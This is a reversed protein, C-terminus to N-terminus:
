SVHPPEQGVPWTKWMFRESQRGRSRKGDIKGMISLSEMRDKRMLHGFFRMQRQRITKMLIRTTNMSRLIEENTQHSTWSVKLIRWYFWLEVAELEKTMQSSITWCESGYLLIPLVYCELIRKKTILAPSGSVLLSKLRQFSGISGIEPNKNWSRM